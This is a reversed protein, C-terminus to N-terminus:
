RGSDGTVQDELGDLTAGIWIDKDLGDGGGDACLSKFHRYETEWTPDPEDVEIVEEVPAGSPLVRTRLVFRSPGWKCLCEVHASGKEGYIDAGFRNRWSVLTAEMELVPVGDATAPTGFSVHDLAKNEFRNASFLRFPAEIPGFLFLALDLLHSGIDSLVGSDRDRWPSERVDRATGNGYFFRALYLRGLSGNEAAEKLRIINPEFRHNYATYCVVGNEKALRKFDRLTAADALLPKEVLVHKGRKLLDAVLALKADDPTCVMAADFEEAPVDALTRVDADANHPDVTAVVDGQVVRQRKRGQVGLGIVVTRLRQRSRNNM